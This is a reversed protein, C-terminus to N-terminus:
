ALSFVPYCHAGEQPECIYDHIEGDSTAIRAHDGNGMITITFSLKGSEGYYEYYELIEGDDTLAAAKEENDYVYDNIYKTAKALTSSNGRVFLAPEITHFVNEAHVSESASVAASDSVAVSSGDKMSVTGDSNIICGTANIQYHHSEDSLAVDIDGIATKSSITLCSSLSTDVTLERSSKGSLSLQTESPLLRVSLSYSYNDGSLTISTKPSVTVSEISNGAIDYDFDRGSINLNVEDSLESFVYPDDYDLETEGQVTFTEGSSNAANVTGDLSNIVKIKGYRETDDPIVITSNEESEAIEESVDAESAETSMIGAFVNHSDHGNGVTYLCIGVALIASAGIVIFRKKM